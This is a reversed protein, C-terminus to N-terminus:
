GQLFIFATVKHLAIFVDKHLTNLHTKIFILHCLKSSIDETQKCPVMLARREWRLESWLSFSVDTCPRRASHSSTVWFTWCSLAWSEEAWAASFVSSALWVIYLLLVILFSCSMIPSTHVNIVCECVAPWSWSAFCDLKILLWKLIM